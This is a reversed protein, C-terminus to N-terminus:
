NGFNAARAINLAIGAWSIVFPFVKLLGQNKKVRRASRVRNVAQSAMQIAEQLSPFGAPGM